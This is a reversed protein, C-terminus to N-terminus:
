PKMPMLVGAGRGKMVLAIPELPGTAHFELPWLDMRARLFDVYRANLLVGGPGEYTGKTPGCRLDALRFPQKVRMGLWAEVAQSDKEPLLPVGANQSPMEGLQAESFVFSSDLLFRTGDPLRAVASWTPEPPAEVASGPLDLPMLLGVATAKVLVVVPQCSGRFGFALGKGGVRSALFDVYDAGLQMGNPATYHAGDKKLAALTVKETVREKLSAAAWPGVAPAAKAAPKQTPKAVDVSLLLAKDSVFPKGAVDISLSWAPEGALASQALLASLLLAQKM